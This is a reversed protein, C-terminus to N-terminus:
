SFLSAPTRRGPHVPSQKCTFSKSQTRPYKHRLLPFHHTIHPHPAWLKPQQSYHTHALANTYECNVSSPSSEVCMETVEKCGHVGRASLAATAHGGAVEVCSRTCHPRARGRWIRALWAAAAQYCGGTSTSLGTGAGSPKLPHRVKLHTFSRGKSFHPQRLKCVPSSFHKWWLCCSSIPISVVCSATRQSM